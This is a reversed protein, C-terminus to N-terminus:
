KTGSVGTSGFGGEGRETEDLDEVPVFSALEIPVFMIQAIRDGYRVTFPEEGHNILCVRIEGRYDSDVVGVSNALTVGKKIGFGSRGFILAVIDTREPSIAIGTPVSAREGPMLTVDNELCAFLDAAAAGPTMYLPLIANEKLKKIKVNM